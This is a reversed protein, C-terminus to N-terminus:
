NGPSYPSLMTAYVALMATTGAADPVPNALVLNGSGDISADYVCEGNDPIIMKIKDGDETDAYRFTCVTVVTNLNVTGTGNANIVFMGPIPEGFGPISDWTGVFMSPIVPDTGNLGNNCSVTLGLALFVALITLLMQKKM